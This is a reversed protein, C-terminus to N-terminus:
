HRREGVAITWLLGLAVGGALRGSQGFVEQAAPTSPCAVAGHQMYALYCGWTQEPFLVFALFTGAYYLLSGWFVWGMLAPRPVKVSYRAALLLLPISAIALGLWSTAWSWDPWWSPSWIVGRTYAWTFWIAQLEFTAAGFATALFSYPFDRTLLLIVLGVVGIVVLDPWVVGYPGVSIIETTWEPLNAGIAGGARALAAYGNDYLLNLAFFVGFILTWSQLLRRPLVLRGAKYM